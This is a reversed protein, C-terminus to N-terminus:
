ANERGVLVTVDDRGRNFDRYLVGAILAPHRNQLGPYRDLSWQSGLGDSHMVLLAHPPWPYSYERIHRVEHGLTGNHSVAHRTSGDAVVMMCINGIGAYTVVRTSRSIQVVGAAAGRTHRLSDHMAALADACSRAVHKRFAQVAAAAAQAAFSGHGLGDALVAAVGDPSHELAWADGCETEGAKAVSMGALAFPTSGRRASRGSRVRALVVTGLPVSSHVDFEDSLRRVAGLGIGASGATSLGDVMSAAVNAIGPGHDLALLELEAVGDDRDLRILIEGRRAHKVLNTALETAVLGARYSDTESFGARDVLERAAFRVSSPQSSEVVPVLAHAAVEM